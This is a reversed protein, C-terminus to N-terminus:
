RYENHIDTRNKCNGEMYMDNVTILVYIIM